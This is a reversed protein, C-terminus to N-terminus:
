RRVGALREVVARPLTAIGLGDEVLQAMASISSLSHVRLPQVGARNLWDLLALHPQSGRQFTILEQARSSPLAGAAADATGSPM